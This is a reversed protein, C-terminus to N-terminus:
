KKFLKFKRKTRMQQPPEGIVMENLDLIHANEKIYYVTDIGLKEEIVWFAEDIWFARTSTNHADSAVFHTLNADILDLSFKQLTKGFKGAVSAATVQTLAGNNVLDFLIDPKQVIESNREPHVIIPKLGEVQLDFLLNGTYAPVHNSPLEILIYTEKDGLTLLSGNKLHELLDGNIRIEQGVKVDLDINHNALMDNLLEVALKIEEASNEFQGNLHHPTAYIVQIGQNVAERAMNLSDQVSKAGDDVDYLIHSHIDIM